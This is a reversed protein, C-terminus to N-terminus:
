GREKGEKSYAGYTARGRTLDPYLSCCDNSGFGLRCL